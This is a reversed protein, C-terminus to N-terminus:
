FRGRSRRRQRVYEEHTGTPDPAYMNEHASDFPSKPLPLSMYDEDSSLVRGSGRALDFGASGSPMIGAAEQQQRAKREGRFIADLQDLPATNISVQSAWKDGMMPALNYAWQKDYRNADAAGMPNMGQAIDRAEELRSPGAGLGLASPDPLGRLDAGPTEPYFPAPGTARFDPQAPAEPLDDDDAIVGLKRLAALIYSDRDSM